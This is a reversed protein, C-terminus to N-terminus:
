GLKQLAINAHGSNSTGINVAQSNYVSAIVNFCEDCLMPDPEKDPIMLISRVQFMEPFSRPKPDCPRFCHKCISKREALAALIIKTNMATLSSAEPDDLIEKAIRALKWAQWWNKVWRLM